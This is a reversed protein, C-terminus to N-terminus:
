SAPKKVLGEKTLEKVLANALGKMYSGVSEPNTTETIGAWLLTNQRVDFLLTEVAVTTNERAGGIPTGVGYVSGWSRGYYDWFNGYQGSSWVVASYTTEKDVNVVRMAVVGDVGAREFWTRAQDKDTLAERPVLTYAAVGVPGRASIERKLAEEASVQLPQDATIVLAAVKKGAFNFPGIGPAKWTSTFKQDAGSVLPPATACVAALLVASISPKGLRM